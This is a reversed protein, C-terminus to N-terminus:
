LVAVRRRTMEPALKGIRIRLIGDKLEATVDDRNADDPVQFSKDFSRTHVPQRKAQSESVPEAIRLERVEPAPSSSETDRPQLLPSQAQSGSQVDVYDSESEDRVEEISTRKAQSTPSPSRTQTAEADVEPSKQDASLEVPTTNVSEQVPATSGYLRLTKRDTFEVNIQEKGFGPIEAEVRYAQADNSFRIAPNVKTDYDIEPEASVVFRYRRAPSAQRRAQPNRRRTCYSSTPYPASLHNVLRHLDQPYYM